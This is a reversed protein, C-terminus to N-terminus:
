GAPEEKEACLEDLTVDLAKALIIANSVMCDDRNQIDEITRRHIGTLESLKNVSIGKQMRIEKLRM